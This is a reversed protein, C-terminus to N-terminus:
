HSIPFEVMKLAGSRGSGFAVTRNWYIALWRLKEYHRPEYISDSLLNQIMKQCAIASIMESSNLTATTPHEKNLREFDGLVHLYPPGDEDLLVRPSKLGPKLAQVDQYTERSLIIRPYKAITTEIHYADLFAPGFMVVGDHHLKGKAIAGRILLGNTLLSLTLHNLSLLLYVLGNLSANSSMVISDFFSQFKFDDGVVRDLRKRKRVRIETLTKVLADYRAPNKDRETKRAIDSFGLIDLFSVYRETYVM